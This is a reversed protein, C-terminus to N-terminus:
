HFLREDHDQENQLYSVKSEDTPTVWTKSPSASLAHLESHLCLEPQM